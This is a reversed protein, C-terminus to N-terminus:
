NVGNSEGNAVKKKKKKKKESKPTESQAAEVAVEEAEDENEKNKKKKKKKKKDTAEEGDSDGDVKVKKVEPQAAEDDTFKRKTSSAMTSDAATKYQLVESQNEYKDFKAAKKGTGSVQFASGGELQRIRAEVKARQELGLETSSDEGLADVRCGLAAKAALTRSIKGKLKTSAQGVMQAHYILGYKPTDHNTKLAKFLAKESGLIQVTSAPHKALNILSGAHSILRAGVLEGVLITLNPAIAIMRNKLYEYLQTRYDQIEIVQQCLHRINLMDEDSIETGMSIEAAEKVKEEIEEPLIDSLDTNHANTREGMKQISRIFAINDTIIKGLEPFHWGYWERCRMMYNNLEKDLDDLLSVAQVIMTDIKDPSFKLKYRSLSHALGLSMAKMEAEPLGTVLGSMQSRICRMLEGVKSDYVCKLDLKAQISLGLKADAVCLNTHGEQSVVKKLLKKLAKSMKGEVTATASALAETTDEFKEFMKLKVVKKAEELTEFDKYLNESQQLKKENLLKFVAFGAPTEFLVLM